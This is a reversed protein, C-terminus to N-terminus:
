PCIAAAHGAILGSFSMSGSASANPDPPALATVQIAEGSATCNFAYPKSTLAYQLNGGPPSLYGNSWDVPLPTVTTPAASFTGTAVFQIQNGNATSTISISQLTRSPPDGGGCALMVSTALVLLIPVPRSM